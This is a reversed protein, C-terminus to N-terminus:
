GNINGNGQGGYMNPFVQVWGSNATTQAQWLVNNTTDLYIEGQFEPTVSGNPEGGGARNPGVLTKDTAGDISGLDRVIAM